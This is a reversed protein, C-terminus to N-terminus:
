RLFGNGSDNLEDFLSFLEAQPEGMEQLRQLLKERMQEGLLKSGETQELVELVANTDISHVAMLLSAHAVVFVYTLSALIIPCACVLAWGVSHAAVIFNSWFLAWYLALIMMLGRVLEFYLDPRSFIFTGDIEADRSRDTLDYVPKNVTHIFSSLISKRRAKRGVGVMTSASRVLHNEMEVFDPNSRTSINNLSNRVMHVINKIPNGAPEEAAQSKNSQVTANSESTPMSDKADGSKEEDPLDLLPIDVVSSTSLRTEAQRHPSQQPSHHHPSNHKGAVSMDDQRLVADVDEDMPIMVLMEGSSSGKQLDPENPPICNCEIHNAHIQTKHPAAQEKRSSISPMFSRVRDSLNGIMKKSSIVISKGSAVTSENSPKQSQNIATLRNALQEARKQKIGSLQGGPRSMSRVKALAVAAKLAAGDMRTHEDEHEQKEEM